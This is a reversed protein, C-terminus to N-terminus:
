VAFRISSISASCLATNLKRSFLIELIQEWPTFQKGPFFGRIGPLDTIFLDLSFFSRWTENLRFLLFLKTVSPYTTRSNRGGFLFGSLAHSSTWEWYIYFSRKHTNRALIYGLQWHLCIRFSGLCGFQEGALYIPFRGTSLPSSRAVHELVLIKSFTWHWGHIHTPLSGNALTPVATFHKFLRNLSCLCEEMESCNM